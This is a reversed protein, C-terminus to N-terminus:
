SINGHAFLPPKKDAFGPRTQFHIYINNQWRLMKFAYFTLPGEATHRLKIICIERVFLGPKSICAKAANISNGRRFQMFFPTLSVYSFSTVMALTGKLFLIRTIGNQTKRRAYFSFQHWSTCLFSHVLAFRNVSFPVSQVDEHM